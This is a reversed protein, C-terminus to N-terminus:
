AAREAQRILGTLAGEVNRAIARKMMVQDLAWGLPGFKVKYELEQTLYAGDGNPEIRTVWRMFHIPWDSEVVELGLARGEEWVTVREVVKGKPVVDCEREAGVGQAKTGRQRAAKVMPNYDAVASLDALLAWLGQPPCAAKLDHRIITVFVDEMKVLLHKHVIM